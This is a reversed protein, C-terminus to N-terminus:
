KGLERARRVLPRHPISSALREIEVPSCLLPLLAAFDREASRADAAAFVAERRAVGGFAIFRACAPQTELDTVGDGVFVLDGAGAAERALALAIELKGGSRALPSTEDFGAYAGEEDHSIKVAFVDEELVGIARAAHLIAPELGGTVICVRKELWRLARVLAGVNPLLSEVYREGLAEVEQRTPRVLALRAAYVAEVAIAGSMAADTIRRIEERHPGALEEIGEISALTSDCDFAIVAYPPPHPLRPV